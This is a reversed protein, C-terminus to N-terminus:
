MIAAGPAIYIQIISTSISTDTRLNRISLLDFYGSGWVGVITKLGTKEVPCTLALSCYGFSPKLRECHLMAEFTHKGQSLRIYYDYELHQVIVPVAHVFAKSLFGITESDYQSGTIMVSNINTGSKNDKEVTCNLLQNYWAYNLQPILEMANTDVILVM